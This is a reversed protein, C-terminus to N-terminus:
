VQSTHPGTYPALQGAMTRSGASIRVTFGKGESGDAQGPLDKSLETLLFLKATCPFYACIKIFTPGFDQDRLCSTTRGSAATGQHRLVPAAQEPRHSVAPRDV